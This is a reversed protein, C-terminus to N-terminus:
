RTLAVIRDVFTKKADAYDRENDPYKQALELKLTEYSKAVDPHENLYDRFLTHANWWEGGYEVVHYVHTKTLEHLDSFKAFVVKGEVDAKLRYIDADKLAHLDFQDVDTLNKVGILLDLMPKASIGRIATSGIHQIDVAKDGLLSALLVKEQDFLAQWGEEHKTLAVVDKNLGLM